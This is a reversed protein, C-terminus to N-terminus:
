RGARKSGRSESDLYKASEKKAFARLERALRPFDSPKQDDRLGHEESMKKAINAIALAEVSALGMSDRHLFKQWNQAADDSRDRSLKKVFRMAAGADLPADFSFGRYEQRLYASMALCLVAGFILFIGWGSHIMTFDAWASLTKM